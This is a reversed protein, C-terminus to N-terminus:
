SKWKQYHKLLKLSSSEVMNIITVKVAGIKILILKASIKALNKVSGRFIKKAHSLKKIKCNAFILVSLKFFIKM